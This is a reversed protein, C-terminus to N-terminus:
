VNYYTYQFRQTNAGLAALQAEDRLSAQQQHERKLEVPTIWTKIVVDYWLNPNIAAHLRGGTNEGGGGDDDSVCEQIIRETGERMVKWMTVFDTELSFATNSVVTLTISCTEHRFLAPPLFPHSLYDVAKVLLTTADSPMPLVPMQALVYRCDAESPVPENQFYPKFCFSIALIPTPTWLLLLLLLSLPFLRVYM